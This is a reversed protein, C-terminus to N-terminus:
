SRSGRDEGNGDGVDERETLELGLVRALARVGEHLDRRPPLTTHFQMHGNQAESWHADRLPQVLWPYQEFVQRLEAVTPKM